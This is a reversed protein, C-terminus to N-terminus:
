SKRLSLIYAAIENAENPPRGTNVMHMHPQQIFSSLTQATTGQRNAVADFAPADTWGSGTGPVVVHCEACYQQALKQGAAVNRPVPDAFAVLPTMALCFAAVVQQSIRRGASKTTLSIM